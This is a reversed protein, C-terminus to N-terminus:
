VKEDIYRGGATKIIHQFSMQEYIMLLWISLKKLSFWISICLPRSHCFKPAMRTIRLMILWSIRLYM